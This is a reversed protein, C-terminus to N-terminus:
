CTRELVKRSGKYSIARLFRRFKQANIVYRTLYGDGGEKTSRRVAEAYEAFPYLHRDKKNVAFRLKLRENPYTEPNIRIILWLGHRLGFIKVAFEYKNDKNVIHRYFKCLDRIELDLKRISEKAEEDVKHVCDNLADINHILTDLGSTRNSQISLNSDHFAGYFTENASQNILSKNEFSSIDSIRGISFNNLMMTSDKGHVLTTDNDNVSEQSSENSTSDVSKAVLTSDLSSIGSMDTGLSMRKDYITSTDYNVAPLDISNVKPMTDMFQSILTLDMQTQNETMNVSVELPQSMNVSNQEQQSTRILEVEPLTSNLMEQSIQPSQEQEQCQQMEQNMSPPSSLQEKEEIMVNETLTRDNNDDLTSDDHNNSVISAQEMSMDVSGNITQNHLHYPSIIVPEVIDMITLDMDERLFLNTIDCTGDQHLEKYICRDSFSVTRSDRSIRKEPLKLISSRKRKTPQPPELERYFSENMEM